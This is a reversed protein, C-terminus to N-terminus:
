VLSSMDASSYLTLDHLYQRWLTTTTAAAAASSSSSSSSEPSTLQTVVDALHVAPSSFFIDYSASRSRQVLSRRLTMLALCYQHIITILEILIGGNMWSIYMHFFHLSFSFFLSVSACLCGSQKIDEADIQAIYFLHKSCLKYVIVQWNGGKTM